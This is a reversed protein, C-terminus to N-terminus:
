KVVPGSLTWQKPESPWGHEVAYKIEQGLRSSRFPYENNPIDAVPYWMPEYTGGGQNQIQVEESNPHLQPEGNVYDCLFIHQMGWSGDNPDEIFVLRPNNVIVMTEEALERHLATIENEGPEIRGGPTVMYKKGDPRSRRIVMLKGDRIVIARAAPPQIM